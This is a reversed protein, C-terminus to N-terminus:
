NFHQLSKFPNINKTTKTTFALTTTGKTVTGIAAEANPPKPKVKHLFFIYFFLQIEINMEYLERVSYEIHFNM